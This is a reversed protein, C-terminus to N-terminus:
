KIARYDRMYVAAAAVLAIALAWLHEALWVSVSGATKLLWSVIAGIVGPLAAAAKGALTKLWSALTKLQKKVWGTAGDHGSPTPTPTPWGGGLMNQFALVVTSVIFGLATLVSAITVGQERFLTRLREALTTDKNLVREVTERIRSIQSRLAERNVASVELRSAREDRQQNLREQIRRKKEPDNAAEEGGLEQEAQTIDADLQSLKALNDVLAGRTRKLAENLGLIERMPLQSDDITFSAEQQALTAVAGSVGSVRQPLDVLEINEVGQLAATASKDVRQLASIQRETPKAHGGTYDPFLHTRIFDAKGLSSLVRYRTSDNKWTVQTLGDKLYLTRKDEGLVFEDYVYPGPLLGERGAVVKLFADVKSKLLGRRADALSGGTLSELAAEENHISTSDALPIDIFEDDEPELAEDILDDFDGPEVGEAM